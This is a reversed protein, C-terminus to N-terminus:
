LERNKYKTKLYAHLIRHLLHAEERESASFPKPIEIANCADTLQEDQDLFTPDHEELYLMDALQMKELCALALSRAQLLNDQRYKKLFVEIISDTYYDCFYHLLLLRMKYYESCPASSQALVAGISVYALEAIEISDEEEEDMELLLIKYLADTYLVQQRTRISEQYYAQRHELIQRLAKRLARRDGHQSHAKIEDLLETLPHM